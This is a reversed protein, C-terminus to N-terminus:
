STAVGSDPMTVPQLFSFRAEFEEEHRMCCLDCRALAPALDLQQREFELLFFSGVAVPRLLVATVSTGRLERASGSAVVRDRDVSDAPRVQLGARVKHTAAARLAGVQSQQVLHLEEVISAVESADVDLNGGLKASM